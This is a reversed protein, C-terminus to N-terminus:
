RAATHYKMSGQLLYIVRPGRLTKEDTRLNRREIVQRAVQLSFVLSELPPTAVQKSAKTKLM